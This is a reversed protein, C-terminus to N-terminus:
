CNEEKRQIDMTQAPTIVITKEASWLWRNLRECCGLELSDSGNTKHRSLHYLETINATRSREQLM